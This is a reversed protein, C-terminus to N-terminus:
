QRATYTDSAPNYDFDSPDGPPSGITTTTGDRDTKTGDWKAGVKTWRYISGEYQMQRKPPPMPFWVSRIFAINRELETRSMGDRIIQIQKAEPINRFAAFDRDKTLSFVYVRKGDANSRERFESIIESATFFYTIRDGNKGDTHIFVFFETRPGQDDEVYTADITVENHNEFFKAQVAGFVEIKLERKRLEELSEAREQLLFDAGAIDPSRKWVWFHELLVAETRLEGIRGHQERRTTAPSFM